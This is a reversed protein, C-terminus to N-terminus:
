IIMSGQIFIYYQAQESKALYHLFLRQTFHSSLLDNLPALQILFIQVL